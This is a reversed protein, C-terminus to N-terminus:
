SLRVEAIRTLIDRGVCNHHTWVEARDALSDVPQVRWIGIDWDGEDRIRRTESKDIRTAVADARLGDPRRTYGYVNMLRCEEGRHKKGKIHIDVYDPGKNVLKGSMTLVPFIDDYVATVSGVFQPAIYVAMVGIVSGVLVAVPMAAIARGLSPRM